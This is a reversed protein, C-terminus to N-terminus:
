KVEDILKYNMLAEYVTEAYVKYGAAYPHGSLIPPYLQEGTIAAKTLNDLASIHAIGKSDFYSNLDNVIATENEILKLYVDSLPKDALDRYVMEETPIELVLLKIGEEDLQDKIEGYLNKTLRLGEAIKPNSLDEMLLRYGPQLIVSSVDNDSVTASYEPYMKAWETFGVISPIDMWINWKNSIYQLLSSYKKLRHILSVDQRDNETESIVDALSRGIEELKLQVDDTTVNCSYKQEFVPDGLYYYKPDVYYVIQYTGFIDNGLYTGIIIIKPHLEIAEQVLLWYEVTNYYGLAMQYVPSGIMRGLAKSWTDEVVAHNGWTHSDGIAVIDVQDPAQGNGNRWGRSDHDPTNPMMRWRVDPDPRVINTGTFTTLQQPIVNEKNYDILKASLVNFFVEALLLGVVVLIIIGGIQRSRKKRMLGGLIISLYFSSPSSRWTSGTIGWMDIVDSDFTDDVVNEGEM